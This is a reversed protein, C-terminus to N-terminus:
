SEWFSAFHHEGEYVSVRAVTVGNKNLKTSLMKFFYRSINEASPSIDTFPLVDNFSKGRFPTVVNDILADVDHFDAVCGSADVTNSALVVDVRWRHPHIAEDSGKFNRLGHSADFYRTTTITYM